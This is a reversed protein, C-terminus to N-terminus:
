DTIDSKDAEEPAGSSADVDGLALNYGRFFNEEAIPLLFEPFQSAFVDIVMELTVNGDPPSLLNGVYNVIISKLESDKVLPSTPTLNEVEIQKTTM